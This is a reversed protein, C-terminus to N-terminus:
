DRAYKDVYEKAKKEFGDLDQSFLSAASGNVGTDTPTALLNRVAVLVDRLGMTVKWNEKLFDM